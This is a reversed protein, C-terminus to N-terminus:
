GVWIKDNIYDVIWQYTSTKFVIKNKVKDVGYTRGLVGFSQDLFSSPYAKAGDLYIYLLKDEQIAELFKHQLLTEYFEEGSNSGLRKWRGGPKDSFDNAINISFEEM